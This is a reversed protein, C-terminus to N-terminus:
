NEVSTIGIINLRNDSLTFLLGINMLYFRRHCTLYHRFSIPHLGWFSGVQITQLTCVRAIGNQVTQSASSKHDVRFSCFITVNDNMSQDRLTSVFKKVFYEYWVTWFPSSFFSFSLSVLLVTVVRSYCSVELSKWCWANCGHQCSPDLLQYANAPLFFVNM